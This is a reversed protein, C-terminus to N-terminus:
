CFCTFTINGVSFASIHHSWYFVDRWIWSTKIAEIFTKVNSLIHTLDIFLLERGLFFYPTRKILNYPILPEHAVSSKIQQSYCYLCDELFHEGICIEFAIYYMVYCFSEFYVIHLISLLRSTEKYMLTQFSFVLFFVILDFFTFYCFVILLWDKLHQQTNLTVMRSFYCDIIYM